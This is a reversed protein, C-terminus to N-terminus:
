RPQNQISSSLHFSKKYGKKRITIPKINSVYIQSSQMTNKSILNLLMKEVKVLYTMPQSNTIQLQKNIKIETEEEELSIQCM